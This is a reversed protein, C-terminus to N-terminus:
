SILKLMLDPKSTTSCAMMIVTLIMCMLIGDGDTDPSNNDPIGDGDNDVGGEVSDPIGDNDDDSDDQNRIGDGDLDPGDPAEVSQLFRIPLLGSFNHPTTETRAHASFSVTGMAFALTGAVAIALTARPSMLESPTRRCPTDVLARVKRTDTSRSKQKNSMQTNDRQSGQKNIWKCWLM